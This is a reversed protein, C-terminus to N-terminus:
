GLGRSGRLRAVRLLHGTEIRPGRVPARRGSRARPRALPSERRPSACCRPTSAPAPHAVSAAVGPPAPSGAPRGIRVVLFLPVHNRAPPIRHRLDRHRLEALADGLPRDPAPELLGAVATAFYSGITSTIVSLTFASTGDGKAPVSIAMRTSSPAVTGLSVGIASISVASAPSVPGPPAVAVACATPAKPSQARGTRNRRPWRRAPRWAAPDHRQAVPPWALPGPRRPAARWRPHPRGCSM